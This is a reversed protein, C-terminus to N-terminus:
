ACSRDRYSSYFYNYSGNGTVQMDPVSLLSQPIVAVLAVAALFTLFVIGVQILYYSDNLPLKGRQAARHRIELAAFWLLVPLSGITNVSSIGILLFLWHWSRLPVSFGFRRTIAALAFAVGVIVVLVGWCLMAPGIRPGSVWLPWRDAPLQVTLNINAAATDLVVEPTRTISDVGRELEWTIQVRNDGPVLPLVLKEDSRGQSIDAGNVLVKKVVNKERLAIRYDGGISSSIALSLELSSTRKGPTLTLASSEITTTAGKVALPQRATLTLTEGPWPQWSRVTSDSANKVPPIGDGDVHWRESADISWVEVWQTAAPALLELTSRPSL